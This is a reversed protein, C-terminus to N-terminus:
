PRDAASSDAAVSRQRFISNHLARVRTSSGKIFRLLLLLVQPLMHCGVMLQVRFLETASGVWDAYSVGRAGIEGALFGAEFRSVGAKCAQLVFLSDAAIPFRRSYYGFRQHLERRFATGVSHNAIFSKEAVLWAPGNKVKFRYRGYTVEAVVIDADHREIANRFNAIADSHFRDDAGAVIYYEGSAIRLARNLADYIGFDAQATIVVDLDAVSQVLEVTGDSSAGDAVVWEFCSDTQRRLSEILAPLQSVSNLSPTVVSITPRPATAIGM